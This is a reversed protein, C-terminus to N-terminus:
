LLPIHTSQNFVLSYFEHQSPKNFSASRRCFYLVNISEHVDFYKKTVYM